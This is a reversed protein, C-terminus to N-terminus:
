SKNQGDFNNLKWEKEKEMKYHNIKENNDIENLITKTQRGVNFEKMWQDQPLTHFPYTTSKVKIDKSFYEVNTKM